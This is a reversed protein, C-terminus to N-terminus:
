PCLFSLANNLESSEAVEGDVDVRVNVACPGQPPCGVQVHHTFAGGPPLPGTRVRSQKSFSTMLTSFAGSTVAGQNKVEVLVTGVRGPGCGASSIKRGVLDSKRRHDRIIPSGSPPLPPPALQGAEGRHDRIIVDRSQIQGPVGGGAAPATKSPAESAGEGADSTPPTEATYATSAGSLLAALCLGLAAWVHVTPNCGRQRM